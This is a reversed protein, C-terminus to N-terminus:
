EIGGERLIEMTQYLIEENVSLEFIDNKITSYLTDSKRLSEIACSDGMFMSGFENESYEYVMLMDSVLAWLIFMLDEQTPMYKYILEHKKIITSGGHGQWLPTRSSHKDEFVEDEGDRVVLVHNGKYVRPRGWQGKYAVNEKLNYASQSYEKVVSRGKYTLVVSIRPNLMRWDSKYTDQLIESVGIHTFTADVNFGNIDENLKFM